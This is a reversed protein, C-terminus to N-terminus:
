RSQEWRVRVHRHPRDLFVIGGRVRPAFSTGHRSWAIMGRNTDDRSLNIYNAAPNPRREDAQGRVYRHDLFIIGGGILPTTGPRTHRDRAACEACRDIASPDINGSAFILIGVHHSSETRHFGVIWGAVSPSLHRGYWHGPVPQRYSVDAIAEVHYTTVDSRRAGPHLNGGALMVREFKGGFRLESSLLTLQESPLADPQCSFPLFTVIFMLGPRSSPM